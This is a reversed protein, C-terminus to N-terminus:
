GSDQYAPGLAQPAWERIRALQREDFQKWARDLDAAHTKWGSASSYNEIPTGDIPLGALFKATADANPDAAQARGCVLLAAFLLFLKLRVLAKKLTAFM